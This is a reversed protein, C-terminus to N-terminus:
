GNAEAKKLETYREKVAACFEDWRGSNILKAPCVKEMFDQHKKLAKDPNLNYAICLSACLKETNILTQEYNGGENVCMEIGIGNMNGGGETMMDGAHYATETDPLHHYIEHDDVTYHWSVIGSEANANQHIFSNHAAADAGASFNDTEHIVLYKIERTQGPRARSGEPLFDTYVPIDDIYSLNADQQPPRSIARQTLMGAAFSIIMLGLILLVRINVGRTGKKRRNTATVKLTSHRELGIQYFYQVVFLRPKGGIPHLSKIVFLSPQRGSLRRRCQVKCLSKM